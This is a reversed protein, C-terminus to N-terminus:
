NKFKEKYIQTYNNKIDKFYKQLKEELFSINQPSSEEWDIAHTGKNDKYETKVLMSSDKMYKELKVTDRLESDGIIKQFFKKDKYHFIGYRGDPSREKNQVAYYYGFDNEDLKEIVLFGNHFTNSMGGMSTTGSVLKYHGSYDQNPIDTDTDYQNTIPEEKTQYNIHNESSAPNIVATPEEETDGRFSQPIIVDSNSSSQNTIEKELYSNFDEPIIIEEEQNLNSNELFDNNEILAETQNYQSSFYEPIIINDDLSEIAHLHLTFLLVIFAQIIYKM